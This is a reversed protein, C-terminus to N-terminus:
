DSTEKEIKWLSFVFLGIGIVIAMDAVNFVPPWFTISIFDVVYGTDIRDILNGLAGGLLLALALRSVIYHSPLQYLYYIIVAMVLLTVIVFLWTQYALFGFAAGPNQVHNLYLLNEIIEKSDGIDLYRLVLWKSGQDLILVAVVIGWFFM